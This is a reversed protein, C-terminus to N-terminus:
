TVIEETQASTGDSARCVYIAPELGTRDRYVRTTESMFDDLEASQVLAVACGAFGGGTMRAGLCGPAALAAAVMADLEPGSVEFDDRLSEHSAVMLSGVLATDDRALADAADITRQNESVVHHARRYLTWDALPDSTLTDLSLDRLFDKGYAATAAECELRRENYRSETLKRRTGTDLVVIDTGTPIAVARTNLSRCDILLAHGERGSGCVLQDMIGSSLGLWENEVHWGMIAARKPDWEFASSVSFARAAALELAASSSLGAGAPLDSTLAGDFGLLEVGADALEHAIGEIYAAWGHHQDLRDLDIKAWEDGLEAWIRVRRDARPRMALWLGRDIAIPLVFGESYDTHDGILNVRGPSRVMFSPPEGFHEAFATWARDEASLGSSM